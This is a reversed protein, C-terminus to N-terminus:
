ARTIQEAKRILGKAQEYEDPDELYDRFLGDTGSVQYVGDSEAESIAKLEQRRLEAKADRLYRNAISYANNDGSRGRKAYEIAEKALDLLSPEM